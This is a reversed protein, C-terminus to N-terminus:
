STAKSLSEKGSAWAQIEPRLEAVLFASGAVCIADGRESTEMMFNWAKAPSQIAKIKVAPLGMERRADILKTASAELEDLPKGRPNDRYRTLVIEDAVDLIPALIEETNKDRTTAVLFRKRSNLADDLEKVFTTTLAAISAGNHAMDMMVLPDRSMIETRGPLTAKALGSRVNEATITWGKEALIHSVMSATAANARQHSGPMATQLSDFKFKTKSAGHCSFSGPKDAEVFFDRDLQYLRSGRQDAVEAIVEMALPHLAGSVVPVGPKIIGAKEFAIKDITNGVQRTHDLSINTIVCVTPQCVNTSDLRGGLGVELVVADCNQDAFFQFGTATVIEFFTLGKEKRAAFEGDLKDVAPQIRELLGSLQEDSILKGDLWFRQNIKELHPSSYIGTRYGSHSLVEGIMRSTSGKGKTGAIHIMPAALNPNGLLQMLELMTALKFSRPGVDAQREYNVRDFLAKLQQQFHNPDHSNM